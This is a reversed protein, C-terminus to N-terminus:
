GARPLSDHSPFGAAALDAVEADSIRLVAFAEHSLVGLLLNGDRYIVPDEFWGRGSPDYALFGAGLAHALAGMTDSNLEWLETARTLDDATRGSMRERVSMGKSFPRVRKEFPHWLEANLRGDTGVCDITFEDAGIRFCWEVLRWSQEASFDVPALYRTNHSPM